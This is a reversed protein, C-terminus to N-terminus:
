WFNHGIIHISAQYMVYSMIANMRVDISGGTSTHGGHFFSSGFALFSSSQILALQEDASMFLNGANHCVETAVHYYALNSAYNCPEYIVIGHFDQPRNLLM